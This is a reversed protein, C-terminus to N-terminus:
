IKDDRIGGGRKCTILNKALFEKHNCLFVNKNSFRKQLKMTKFRLKMKIYFSCGGMFLEDGELFQCGTLGGFIPVLILDRM